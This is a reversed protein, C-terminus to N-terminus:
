VRRVEPASSLRDSFEVQGISKTVVAEMLDQFKTMEDCVSEIARLFRQVEARTITLPPQVRMVFPHSRATQTSIAHTQLLSQMAYFANFAKVADDLQPAFWAMGTSADAARFHQLLQQSLPEFELGLLLGQGRVERVVPCRSAM